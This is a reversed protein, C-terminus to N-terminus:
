DLRYRRVYFTEPPVDSRRRETFRHGLGSETVYILAPDAADILLNVPMDLDEALTEVPRPGEALPDVIRTLKGNGSAVGGEVLLLDGNRDVAFGDPNELPRQLELRRMQTGDAKPKEIVFIAGSGYIGVLLTSGDSAVAIGAAGVGDIGKGDSSLRQDTVLISLRNAGAPLTLIRPVSTDTIFLSGDAGLAMDNGFGADPMMLVLDVTGTDADRAFIRHARRQSRGDPQEIGLFDPSAGWLRRANQGFRLTTSAFVSPDDVDFRGINGGNIKVIQGSVVSGVLLAGDPAQAIGNPYLFGAPLVIPDLVELQAAHSASAAGLSLALAVSLGLITRPRAVRRAAYWEVLKRFVRNKM